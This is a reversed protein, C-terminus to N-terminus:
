KKKKSGKGSKARKEGGGKVGSKSGKRKIGLASASTTQMIQNAAKEANFSEHEKPGAGMLRNLVDMSAKKEDKHERATNVGQRDLPRQNPEGVRKKDFIGQSATSRQAVSIAVDVHHKKKRKSEAKSKNDAKSAKAAAALDIAGEIRNAGQTEVLGRKINGLQQDKNKKIREKKEREMRTWPDEGKQDKSSAPIAWVDSEDNARKYGFRPRYEEKEEDFVMRSKKKKQIGKEKAFKEWKTLPKPKPVPKERPVLTAPTPLSVVRGPIGAAPPDAPQDFLEKLLEEVRETAFERLCTEVDGDFVLAEEDYITLNGTDCKVTDTDAM